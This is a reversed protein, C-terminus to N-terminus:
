TARPAGTTAKLTEAIWKAIRRMVYGSFLVSIHGHRFRWVEARWAAELEAITETPAFLDLDSAVILLREPPLRPTHTYLNISRFREDLEAKLDRMPECFPLESLARDLRVVPTLLVAADIEPQHSAALGGIWGGLSVGWIGVSPAGQARLWLALARIDGLTQHVARVVHSVDGSFFNRIAANRPRRSAHFPLEFRVVNMGRLAVLQSWFPLQFQYQLEANWGHLLIVAPRGQWDRRAKEIYGPVRANEAGPASLPSTFHFASDSTFHVDAAPVDPSFFGPQNLLTAAEVAHSLGDPSPRVSGCASRLAIRDLPKAIWHWM